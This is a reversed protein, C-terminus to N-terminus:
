IDIFYRKKAEDADIIEIGQEQAKKIKSGADTGALLVDVKKSITNVVLVGQAQLKAALDSRSIGAFKGTIAVVSTHAKVSKFQLGLDLLEQVLLIGHEKQFYESVAAAVQPGIDPLQQLESISVKTFWAIDGNAADALTAATAEGVHRIGLAYLLRQLTTVKAADIALVMNKASKAAFGPLNLWVKFDLRFIDSLSKVLNEEVLKDTISEGLGKINLAKKSCFHALLAKFQAPCHTQAPCRWAIEGAIQVLKTACVPCTTPAALMELEKPRLEDLVRVVEPIVDGARQVLVTDGIRVDKRRWESFNHLTINTVTVGGVFIPMVRVVPTIVGTRGVQFMIDTVKTSQQEAPFKYATAWRPSKQISGLKQQISLKNCKLVIGDIEYPLTPRQESLKSLYQEAEAIDTCVQELGATPLGVHAFWALYEAHTTFLEQSIFGISYCYFRLPRTASVSPDLQRLSGAAANRPNAFTKQGSAELELNMKAFDQKLMLVEGRVELLDPPNDTLLILPLSRITRMAHTIDEGTIGDGRTAAKILRGKEYTINVALGDFKPECCLEINGLVTKRCRKYFDNVDEYSFCNSLSLMPIKHTLTPQNASVPAGVRNTPSCIDKYEPFKQELELLRTYATDFVLDSVLPESLNYYAHSWSALKQRLDLLEKVETQM